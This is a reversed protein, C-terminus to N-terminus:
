RNESTLYRLRTRERHSIGSRNGPNEYGTAKGLLRGRLPNRLNRDVIHRLRAEHLM